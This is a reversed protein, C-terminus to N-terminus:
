NDGFHMLAYHMWSKKVTEKSETTDQYTHARWRTKHAHM